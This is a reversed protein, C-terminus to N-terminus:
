SGNVSLAFDPDYVALPGAPTGEEDM